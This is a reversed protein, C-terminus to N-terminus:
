HATAAFTFTGAPSETIVLDGTDGLTIAGVAPTGSDKQISEVVALDAVGAVPTVEVGNLEISEIAEIVATGGSLVSVGNLTVDGVFGQDTTLDDVRFLAVGSTVITNELTIGYLRAEGVGTAGLTIAGTTTNYNIARSGAVASGTVNAAIYGRRLINVLRYQEYLSLNTEGGQGLAGSRTTIGIVDSAGGKTVKTDEYSPVRSVVLGIGIGAADNCAFDSNIDALAPNKVEGATLVNRNTLASQIAGYTM